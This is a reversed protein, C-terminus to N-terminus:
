EFYEYRYEYFSVPENRGDYVERGTLRRENDYMYIMREELKGTDTYRIWEILLGTNDYIRQDPYPDPEYYEMHM